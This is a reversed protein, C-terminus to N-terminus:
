DAHSPSVAQAPAGNADAPQPEATRALLRDLAARIEDRTLVHSRLQTVAWQELSLGAQTAARCMPEYLEDPVDITIQRPM